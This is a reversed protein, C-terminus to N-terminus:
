RLAAWAHVDIHVIDIDFVLLMLYIIINRLSVMINFMFMPSVEDM